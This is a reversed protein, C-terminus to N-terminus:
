LAPRSKDSVVRRSDNSAVKKNGYRCREADHVDKDRHFNPRPLNYMPISRFVGCSFPRNLLETLKECKIMRVSEEDVVSIRNERVFQILLQFAETHPNQLRRSSCWLRVRKALSQDPGNAPFAEIPDNRKTFGM